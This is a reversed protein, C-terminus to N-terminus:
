KFTQMHRRALEISEEIEEFNYGAIYSELLFSEAQHILKAKRLPPSIQPKGNELPDAAHTGKGARTIVLGQQVLENDAHQITGPTCNWQQKLERISPLRDGHQYIGGLIQKRIEEAIKPYLITERLGDRVM